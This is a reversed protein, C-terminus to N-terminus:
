QPGSSAGRGIASSSGPARRPATRRPRGGGDTGAEAIGGGGTAPAGGPERRERAGLSAAFQRPVVAVGDPFALGDLLVEPPRPAGSDDFRIRWLKGNPGPVPRLGEWVLDLDTYYLTGDAGVALGMPSGTAHPPLLGPPDLVDRIRNGELDYEAIEGTLPSSAFLRGGSLALGAFVYPARVLVERTVRDARPSGLEDRGGCGGAADPGSPFPPSFRLIALGSASAVYVRGREDVVVGGATGIRTDLKCFPSSPGAGDSAGGARLSRRDFPPFWLLLQGRGRGFGKNGVDTTFLRGSRDFACGYPEGPLVRYTAVLRGLQRGDPEFVGWGPPRAPQGTDEGLVFRGSGDPLWCVTGNVDRRRDGDPAASTGEGGPSAREIVLERRPPGADVEVRWLRNGEAVM